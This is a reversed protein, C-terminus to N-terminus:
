GAVAEAEEEKYYLIRHCSPCINMSEGKRIVNFQQPPISMYCGQCVGNITQVVGIGAKKALLLEYRKLINPKLGASLKKRKKGVTNKRKNVKEIEKNVKATEEELIEKEGKSLNKLEVSEKQVEEIQEMFLILKEESDKILKKNDEIEKLLAQHERSTQVLMMKNQREKILAQSDELTVKLDRQKQLLEECQQNCDNAKLEKDEISQVRDTILQQRESIQRDFGAIETDVEQLAILKGTDENM